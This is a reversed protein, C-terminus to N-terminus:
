SVRCQTMWRSLSSPRKWLIFTAARTRNPRCWACVSVCQYTCLDVRMYISTSAVVLLLLRVHVLRTKQVTELMVLAQATKPEMKQTGDIIKISQSKAREEAAINMNGLRERTPKM